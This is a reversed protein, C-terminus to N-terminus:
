RGGHSCAVDSSDGSGSVTRRPRVFLEHPAERAGSGLPLPLLRERSEVRGVAALDVAETNVEQMVGPERFVENLLREQAEPARRM